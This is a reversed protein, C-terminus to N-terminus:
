PNYLDPNFFNAVDYALELARVAPSDPNISKAKAYDGMAAGRDGLRWLLKGREFYLKDSAPSEEIMRNLFELAEHLQNKSILENVKSNQDM